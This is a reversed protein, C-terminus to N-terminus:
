LIRARQSRCSHLTVSDEDVGFLWAFECPVVAAPEWLGACDDSCGVVALSLSLIAAFFFQARM